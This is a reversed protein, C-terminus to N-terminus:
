DHLGRGFRQEGDGESRHEGHTRRRNTASLAHLRLQHRTPGLRGARRAVVDPVDAGRSVGRVCDDRLRGRRPGPGCLGEGDRSTVARSLRGTHILDSGPRRRLSALESVRTASPPAPIRLAKSIPPITAAATSIAKPIAAITSANLPRFVTPESSLVWCIVPVGSMAESEGAIAASTFAIVALWSARTLFNWCCPTSNVGECTVTGSQETAPSRTSSPSEARQKAFYMNM